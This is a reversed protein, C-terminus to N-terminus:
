SEMFGSGRVNEQLIAEKCTNFVVRVNNSDTACTVHV